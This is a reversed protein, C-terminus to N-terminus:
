FTQLMEAWKTDAWAGRLYQDDFRRGAVYISLGTAERTRAYNAFIAADYATLAEAAAAAVEADGDGNAGAGSLAALINGLDSNTYDFTYAESVASEWLDAGRDSDMLATAVRDLADNLAPLAELDTVSQTNDGSARFTAAVHDGFTLGSMGPDATLASLAGTYEWGDAGEYDQAAVFARASGMATYAVEWDAMICADMGFMDLPQGIAAVSGALVDSIDGGAVSLENNSDQDWSIGKQPLDARVAWGDGHDWIVLAYREAPYTAAAWAVFDVVTQPDGSDAEGIDDIVASGIGDPTHRAVRYRRTSTWDGDTRDYGRARDLQVIVNVEATSGVQEMEELDQLGYEELDNDGNIFVMVTWAAMAAAVEVEASAEAEKGAGSLVSLTCGLTGAQQAILRLQPGAGTTGDTCNWSWGALALGSPDYSASGDFLIEAGIQAVGTDVAILAVPPDAEVPDSDAGSDTGGSDTGEDTGTNDTAGDPGGSEAGDVTLQSPGCGILGAMLTWLM